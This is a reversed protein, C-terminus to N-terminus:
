RGTQLPCCVFLHHSNSKNALSNEAMVANDNEATDPSLAHEPVITEGHPTDNHDSMVFSIGNSM